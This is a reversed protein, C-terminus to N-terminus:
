VGGTTQSSLQKLCPSLVLRLGEPSLFRLRCQFSNSFNWHCMLPAVRGNMELTAESLEEAWATSVFGGRAESLRHQM